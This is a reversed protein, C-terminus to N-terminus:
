VIKCVLTPNKKAAIVHNLLIEPTEFIYDTGEAKIANNKQHVAITMLNMEKAKPLNIQSDETMPTYRPDCGAKELAMEYPITSVSKKYPFIDELSIINEDPFFDRIARQNVVRQSWKRSGHTIIFHKKAAQQMKELFNIEMAKIFSEDLNAHWTHLVEHIDGGHEDVLFDYGSYYKEWSARSLTIAQKVTLHPLFHLATKYSSKWCTRLFEECPEYLVLDMDWFMTDTNSAWDLM